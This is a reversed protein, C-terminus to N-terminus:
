IGSCGSLNLTHVNGLSSVDSIRCCGFLNLSIQKKPDSVRSIIYTRFKKSRMYEESNSKNMKLYCLLKRDNGNWLDPTTMWLNKLDIYEKLLHFLQNFNNLHNILQYNSNM